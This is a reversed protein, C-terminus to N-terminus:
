LHKGPKSYSCHQSLASFNKCRAIEHTRYTTFRIGEVSRWLGAPSSSPSCLLVVCGSCARGRHLLPLSLSSSEWSAALCSVSSTLWFTLANVELGLYRSCRLRQLSPFGPAVVPHQEDVGSWALAESCVSLALYRLRPEWQFTPRVTCSLMPLIEALVRWFCWLPASDSVWRAMSPASSFPPPSPTAWYMSSIPM